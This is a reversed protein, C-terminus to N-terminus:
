SFKLTCWVCMMIMFHGILVDLWKRHTHSISVSVILYRRQKRCDEWIRWHVGSMIMFHGTCWAMKQAHSLYFCVSHSVEEAEQLRGLDKLAGGQLHYAEAAESPLTLMFQIEKAWSVIGWCVVLCEIDKPVESPACPLVLGVDLSIPHSCMRHSNYHVDYVGSMIMFHGTWRAMVQAIIIRYMGGMIMFHGTWWAM